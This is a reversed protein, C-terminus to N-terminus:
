KNPTYSYGAEFGLPIGLGWFLFLTATLVILLGISYPIMMGVMTGVGTNKVYRQCYMIILPYFPFMPTAVNVASDSIRFAAQTLEPSIGVAMLMPVFVPALIAWKSTASTIMFNLMATLLIIGVITFGAPMSLSKLFEAGSVAILTGLNSMKFAYLFQAAFFAFVIFGILTTMVNEMAKTVDNSNKFVGAAYGYVLGPLSFVVLLLPVIAQMLPAKYSTLSGDAARLMSNEPWALLVVLLAFGLVAFSAMKFARNETDSMENNIDSVDIDNDIPWMENLRPEVFKDTVLWCMLLVGITGGLSVFYNCLVNVEYSPDIMRAADQTFSQMIPDIVSPTFSATFGGALGAFSAAIGALPHRGSVYFIMASVPMLIVYASDAVLHSLIAIVVISPTLYKASTLKLLKKILVNVYGSGEAIGIGLTAVITMGLPPFSVFNKVMALVFDILRQPEFMNNVQVQEGTLPHSYDFQIFSLGLSLLMCVILAYVFLMTINPLANGMREVRSIFGTTKPQPKTKTTM